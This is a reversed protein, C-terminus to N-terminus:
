PCDPPTVIVRGFARRSEVYRHAAAADSVPFSRDIEVHLEDSAVRELMDGIM